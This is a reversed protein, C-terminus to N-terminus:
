QLSVVCCRVCGIDFWEVYDRCHHYCEICKATIECTRTMKSDITNEMWLPKTLKKSQEVVVFCEISYISQVQKYHLLDYLESISVKSYNSKLLTRVLYFLWWNTQSLSVWNEYKWWKVRSWRMKANSFIVRASLCQSKILFQFLEFSWLKSLKWNQSSINYSTKLKMEESKESWNRWKRKRSRSDGSLKFNKSFSDLM